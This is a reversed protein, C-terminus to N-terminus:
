IDYGSIIQSPTKILVFLYPILSICLMILASAGFIGAALGIYGGFAINMVFYRACLIASTILFFVFYSIINGVLVSLTEKFLLNSRNVGIARYIGYEKSNKISGSKEIFFYICLLLVAAIYFINLGGTAQSLIESNAAEYINQINVTAIGRDRLRANLSVLQEGGQTNIEFYYQAYAKESSLSNLNPKLYVFINKLTDANVYIRIDSSTLDRTISLRQVFLKSDTIQIATSTVGSQALKNNVQQVISDAYSTDSM